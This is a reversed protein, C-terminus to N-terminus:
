GCWPAPFYKRIDGLWRAVGPQSAGSGGKRQGTKALDDGGEMGADYLSALTRDIELDAGTLTCGVGDAAAGGLLLRWRRLREPSALSPVANM